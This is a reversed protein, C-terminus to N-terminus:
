SYTMKMYAKKHKVCNQCKQCLGLSFKEEICEEQECATRMPMKPVVVMERDIEQKDPLEVICKEM